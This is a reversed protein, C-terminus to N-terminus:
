KDNKHKDKKDGKETKTTTKKEKKDKPEKKNKPTKGEKHDKKGKKEDKPMKADDDNNKKDKKPTAEVEEESHENDSASELDIDAAAAKRKRAPCFVASRRSLNVDSLPGTSAVLEEILKQKVASLVGKAHEPSNCIAIVTKGAQLCGYLGTGGAPTGHLVWQPKLEHCLERLLLPSNDLPFWICDTKSPQRTLARGTNRKPYRHKRVAAEDNSDNNDDGSAEADGDATGAGFVQVKDEGVELISQTATRVNVPVVTLEEITAIPVKSMFDCYTPSGADVHARAKACNKPFTGKWCLYCVEVAGSNAFGRMQKFYCAAKMMPINYNLTVAKFEYRLATLQKQIEADNSKVKGGMIFLFDRGPKLM